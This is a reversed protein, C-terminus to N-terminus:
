TISRGISSMPHLLDRLRLVRYSPGHSSAAISSSSSPAVPSYSFKMSKGKINVRHSEKTFSGAGVESGRLCDEGKFFVVKNGTWTVDHRTVRGLDLHVPGINDYNYTYCDMAEHM